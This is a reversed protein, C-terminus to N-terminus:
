SEMGQNMGPLPYNVPQATMLDFVIANYAPIHFGSITRMQHDTWGTIRRIRKLLSVGSMEFTTAANAPVVIAERDEVTCAQVLLMQQDENILLQIQRPHKLAELVGKNVMISGEDMCLTLTLANSAQYTNSPITTYQNM